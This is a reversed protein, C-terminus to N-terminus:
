PTKNDIGMGECMREADGRFVVTRSGENGTEIGKETEM